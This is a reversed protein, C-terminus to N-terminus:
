DTIWSYDYEKLKELVVHSVLETDVDRITEVTKTTRQQSDVFSVYITTTQQSPDFFFDCQM